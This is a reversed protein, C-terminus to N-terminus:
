QYKWDDRPRAEDTWRQDKLWTAPYKIFSEQTNWEAEAYRRAGDLIVEPDTTQVAAEWARRAEVKAIKRPYSRWFQDFQDGPGDDRKAAPKDRSPVSRVSSPNGPRDHEHRHDEDHADASGTHTNGLDNGLDVSITETEELISRVPNWFRASQIGSDASGPQNQLEDPISLDYITARGRREGTDIMYGLEALRDYAHKATKWDVGLALAIGNAGVFFRKGDASAQDGIEWGVLRHAPTLRKDHRVARRWRMMFPVQSGDIRPLSTRRDQSSRLNM